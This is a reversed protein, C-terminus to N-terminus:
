EVEVRVRAEPVSATSKSMAVLMAGPLAVTQETHKPNLSLQGPAVSAVLHRKTDAGAPLVTASAAAVPVAARLRATNSGAFIKRQM